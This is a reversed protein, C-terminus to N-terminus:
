RPEVEVPPFCGEKALSIWFLTIPGISGSIHVSTSLFNLSFSLAFNGAM